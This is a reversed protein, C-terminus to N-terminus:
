FETLFGYDEWWKSENEMDKYTISNKEIDEYDVYISSGIQIDEEYYLCVDNEEKIKEYVKEYQKNLIDMVKWLEMNDIPELQDANEEIDELSLYATKFQALLELETM